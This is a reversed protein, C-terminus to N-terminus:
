KGVNLFARYMWVTKEQEQSYRTMLDATAVDNAEETASIIRRQCSIIKHYARLICEVSEKADTVNEVAIVEAVDLYAVFSHLPTGELAAIREAIEDIKLVLDEYLLGFKEHLEFFFDGRLNWHFGRVNMQLVQYNALLVNLKNVLEASEAKDLGISNYEKKM